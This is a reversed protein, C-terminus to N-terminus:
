VLNYANSGAVVVGFSNRWEGYNVADSVGVPAGFMVCKINTISAPNECGAAPALSPAREAYINFARCGAVAQCSSACTSVNYSGQTTFTLYGASNVSAVLNRFVQKFGTPAAANVANASDLYTTDDLFSRLGLAGDASKYSYLSPQKSCPANFDVPTNAAAAAEYAAVVSTRNWYATISKIRFDVTENGPMRSWNPNGSSWNNWVWVGPISPVSTNFIAQLAGDIYYSTQGPVWDLRYEHFADRGDAPPTVTIYKKPSTANVAQNTLYVRDPLSSLYEIDTEQNDNKYFFMGQCAGPAKPLKAVTRVSGYLIDNYRTLFSGSPISRNASEYADNSGNVLLSISEGDNFRVQSKAYQRTFPDKTSNKVAYTSINLNPLPFSQSASFDVSFLTSFSGVGSISYGFDTKLITESSPGASTPALLFPLVILTSLLRRTM